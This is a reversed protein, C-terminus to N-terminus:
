EYNLMKKIRDELPYVFISDRLAWSGGTVFRYSFYTGWFLWILKNIKKNM